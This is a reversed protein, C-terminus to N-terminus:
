SANAPLISLIHQPGFVVVDGCKVETVIHPDNDLTGTGKGGVLVWMRETIDAGVFGLKVYDGIKVAAKEDSTPVAFTAVHLVALATGDLLTYAVATTTNM